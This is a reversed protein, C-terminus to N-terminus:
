SLKLPQPDAFDIVKVRDTFKELEESLDYTEESIKSIRKIPFVHDDRVKQNPRPGNMEKFLRPDTPHYFREWSATNPAGKNIRITLRWAGHVLKNRKTTAKKARVLLNELEEYDKTKLRQGALALMIERQTQGNIGSASIIRSATMHTGLLKHFLQFLTLEIKDWVRMYIGLALDCEPLTPSPEEFEVEDSPPTVGASPPISSHYIQRHSIKPM